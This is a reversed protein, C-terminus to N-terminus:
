ALCKEYNSEKRTTNNSSGDKNSETLWSSIASIALDDHEAPYESERLALDWIITMDDWVSDETVATMKDSEDGGSNVANTGQGTHFQYLGVALLLAAAASALHLRWRHGGARGFRGPAARGAPSSESLHGKLMKALNDRMNGPMSVADAKDAQKMMEEGRSIEQLMRRAEAEDVGCAHMIERINLDNRSM